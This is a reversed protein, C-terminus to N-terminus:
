QVPCENDDLEITDDRLYCDATYEYYGSDDSCQKEKPITTLTYEACSPNSSGESDNCEYPIDSIFFNNTGLKVPTSGTCTNMTTAFPLSINKYGDTPCTGQTSTYRMNDIHYMIEAKITQSISDTSSQNLIKKCISSKCQTLDTMEAYFWTTQFPHIIKCYCFRGNYTPTLGSIFYGTEANPPNITIDSNVEDWGYNSTHNSRIAITEIQIQQGNLTCNGTDNTCTLESGTCLDSSIAPISLLLYFLNTILLKKM